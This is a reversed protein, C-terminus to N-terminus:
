FEVYSNLARCYKKIKLHRQNATLTPQRECGRRVPLQSRSLSDQKGSEENQRRGRSRQLILLAIINECKGSEESMRIAFLTM